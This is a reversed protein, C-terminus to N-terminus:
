KNCSGIQFFGFNEETFKGSTSTCAAFVEPTGAKLGLTKCIYCWNVCVDGDSSKLLKMNIMSYIKDEHIDLKQAKGQFMMCMSFGDPDFQDLGLKKDGNTPRSPSSISSPRKCFFTWLPLLHQRAIFQRAGKCFRVADIKATLQQDTKLDNVFYARWIVVPTTHKKDSTHKFLQFAALPTVLTVKKPLDVHESSKNSRKPIHRSLSELTLQDKGIIDLLRFLAVVNGHNSMGMPRIADIFETATIFEARNPNLINYWLETINGSFSLATRMFNDITLTANPTFDHITLIGDCDKDMFLWARKLNGTYGLRRAVSCFIEFRLKSNRDKAFAHWARIMTGYINECFTEFEAYAEGYQDEVDFFRQKQKKKFEAFNEDAPLPIHSFEFKEILGDCSTDLLDFILGPEINFQKNWGLKKLKSAFEGYDIRENRDSDFYRWAESMTLIGNDLIFNAIILLHDEADPCIERLSINGSGDTDLAIWLAGLNYNFGISRCSSCFEQFGLIGDSNKDLGFHWARFISGYAEILYERFLELITEVNLGSLQTRIQSKRLVLIESELKEEPLLKRFDSFTLRSKTVMQFLKIISGKDMWQFGQMLVDQFYELSCFGTKEYNFYTWIEDIWDLEYKTKLKDILVRFQYLLEGGERDIYSYHLEEKSSLIDFIEKLNGTFNIFMNCATYFNNRSLIMQRSPFGNTMASWGLYLTGYRNKLFKIFKTIESQDFEQMRMLPKLNRTTSILKRATHVFAEKTQAQCGIERGDNWKKTWLTLHQLPTLERGENEYDVKAHTKSVSFVVGVRNTTIDVVRTKRSIQSVYHEREDKNKIFPAAPILAICPRHNPIPLPPIVREIEPFTFIRTSPLAVTM